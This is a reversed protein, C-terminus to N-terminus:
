SKKFRRTALGMLSLAFIALTSPEPVAVNMRMNPHLSNSFSSAAFGEFGDILTISPQNIALPLGNDQYYPLSAIGNSLHSLDAMRFGIAYYTSEMFDFDLDMDNWGLSSNGFNKTASALVNTVQHGDISGWIVVEFLSDLVEAQFGISDVSFDENALFSIGRGDGASGGSISCCFNGSNLEVVGANAVNFLCSASLVIGAITTKLFKNKM